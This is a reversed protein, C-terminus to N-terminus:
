ACTTVVNRVGADIKWLSKVTAVGNATSTQLKQRKIHEVSFPVAVSARLEVM